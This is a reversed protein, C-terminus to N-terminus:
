KKKNEQAILGAVMEKLEGPINMMTGSVEPRRYGLSMTASHGAVKAIKVREEPTRKISSVSHRLTSLTGGPVGATRLIKGIYTGQSSPFSFLVDRPKLKLSARIKNILEDSLKVEKKGYKESSKNYTHMIVTKSRLTIYKDPEPDPVRKTDYYIEIDALDLRLPLEKYVDILLLEVSSEGFAKAVKTRIEDFPVNAITPQEETQEITYVKAANFADLYPEKKVKKTLDPYEDLLFLLSRLYYRRTNGNEYTDHIKQLVSAYQRLCVIADNKVDLCDVLLRKIPAFHNKKWLPTTNKPHNDYFTEINELTLM